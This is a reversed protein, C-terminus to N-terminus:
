IANVAKLAEEKDDFHQKSHGVIQYDEHGKGAILITDKRAAMSIAKEIAKSRDPEVLYSFTRVEPWEIREMGSELIGEEIQEIIKEPDETRPNDSTIIVIDSNQGAILGMDYRKGKDRDGGCGFVTILREKVFPRINKQAKLLADPTHSYDIIIPIGARNNVPELRGPVNKLSNIGKKVLELNVGSVLAAGAAALINYINIEGILSSRINATGSPTFLKASLGKLNAKVSEARVDWEGELGYTLVDGKVLKVLEKGRPDDMNIVACSRSGNGTKNLDRFLISKAMFYKEMDRHYDLHDRSLNTFVGVRFPCDGTRQQDLAHSSVEMVLNTVGNDAMKKALRMLDLSEPTTVSSPLECGSFRSNITGIVGTKKSATALISELLYSTTTKGNTGTIGTIDMGNFPYDYFCAALRSLARRSNPVWVKSIKGSDDKKEAVVAVAGKEMADPLYDYGNLSNGKIAIFLNGREVKRSDYNLGTIELEPNGDLEYEDLANLLN